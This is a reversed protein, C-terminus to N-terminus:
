RQIGSNRLKTEDKRVFGGKEADFIINTTGSMGAIFEELTERDPMKEIKVKREKM